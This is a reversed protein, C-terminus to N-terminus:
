SDSSLFAKLETSIRERDEKFIINAADDSTLKLYEEKSMGNSAPIDLSIYLPKLKNECVQYIAGCNPISKGLLEIQEPTLDKM